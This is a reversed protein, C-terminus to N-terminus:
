SPEGSPSLTAHLDAASPWRELHERSPPDAANGRAANREFKHWLRDASMPNRPAGCPYRVSARHRTGDHLHLTLTDPEDPDYAQTRWLEDSMERLRQDGADGELTEIETFIDKWADAWGSLRLTGRVFERVNWAPEFHYAAMFPLAMAMMNTITLGAWFRTEYSLINPPWQYSLDDINDPQM